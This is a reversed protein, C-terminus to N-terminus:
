QLYILPTCASRVGAANTSNGLDWLLEIHSSSSVFQIWCIVAFGHLQYQTVHECVKTVVNVDYVCCM